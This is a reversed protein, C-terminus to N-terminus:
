QSVGLLADKAANLTQVQGQWDCDRGLCPTNMVAEAQRVAAIVPELTELDPAGSADPLTNDMGTTSQQYVMLSAKAYRVDLEENHLQELTTAAASFSSAADGAQRQFPTQAFGSPSCGTIAIISSVIVLLNALYRARSSTDHM